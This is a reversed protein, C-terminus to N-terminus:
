NASCMVNVRHCAKIEEIKELLAKLGGINGVMCGLSFRAENALNFEFAGLRHELVEGIFEKIEDFTYTRTDGYSDKHKVVKKITNLTVKTGGLDVEVEVSKLSPLDFVENVTLSKYSDRPSQCADISGNSQIYIYKYGTHIPINKEELLWKYGKEFLAKQVETSIVSNIVDVCFDNPSEVTSEKLNELYHTLTQHAQEETMTFTSSVVENNNTLWRTGVPAYFEVAYWHSPSYIHPVDNVTAWRHLADYAEKKTNFRVPNNVYFKGDGRLYERVYLGTKSKFNKYDQVSAFKIVFFNKSDPLVTLFPLQSSM